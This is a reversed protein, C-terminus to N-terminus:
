EGDCKQTAENQKHGVPCKCEYSGVSNICNGGQCVGPIARCEDVDAFVFFFSESRIVQGLNHSNSETVEQQTENREVEM